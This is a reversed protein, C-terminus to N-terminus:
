IYISLSAPRLPAKEHIYIGSEEQKIEEPKIISMVPATELISNRGVVLGM